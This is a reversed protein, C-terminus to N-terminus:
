EIGDSNSEEMFEILEEETIYFQPAEDVSKQIESENKVIIKQGNEECKVNLWDELGGVKEFMIEKKLINDTFGFTIENNDVDVKIRKLVAEPKVCSYIKVPEISDALCLLFYIINDNSLSQRECERNIVLENDIGYKKYKKIREEHKGKKAFWINHRAVADAAKRYDPYLKSSFLIGDECYNEGHVKANRVLRDYLIIGGTIGHDLHELMEVTYKYYGKLLSSYPYINDNNTRLLNSDEKIDNEYIFEEITKQQECKHENNEFYYGVDHYLCALFWLFLFNSKESECKGIWDLEDYLYIGLFFLSVTHVNREGLENLKSGDQM